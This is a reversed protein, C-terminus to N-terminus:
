KLSKIWTTIKELIEPSITEEIEGYEMTHGSTCHQFMHNLEPFSRVQSHENEPLNEIFLQENYKFPIQIDREAFLVLVPGQIQRIDEMPDYKIYFDSWPTWQKMTTKLNTAIYDPISTNLATAIEKVKEDPNSFTEGQKRMEFIKELANCYKEIIFNPVKQDYLMNYHQNILIKSGDQAPAALTITFKTLGSHGLMIGITGGENHGLLGINTFKQTNKLYKIAAEADSAFTKITAKSVNGKSGGASRDDYRLSGIGNLALHNALVLYPKHGNFEMDRNQLGKTTVLVVIPTKSTYNKPLTLTGALLAGDRTNKFTINRNIYRFPGKPTQPRKQVYNGQTLTLTTKKAKQTFTGTITKDTKKGSFSSQINKALLSISDKSEFLIEAPINKIGQNPADITCKKNNIRIVVTFKSGNIKMSGNWTGNFSQAWCLSSTLMLLLSTLIAKRM